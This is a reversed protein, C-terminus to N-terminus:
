CIVLMKTAQILNSVFIIGSIIDAICPTIFRVPDFAEGKENEFLNLLKRTSKSLREEILPTNSVYQRIASVFIRRHYKWPLNDDGFIIDKGGALSFCVCACM